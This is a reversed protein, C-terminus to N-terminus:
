ADVTREITTWGDMTSIAERRDTPTLLLGGMADLAGSRGGTVGTPRSRNARNARCTRNTLPSISNVHACEQTIDMAPLFTEQILDDGYKFGDASASPEEM